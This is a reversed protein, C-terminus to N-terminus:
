VIKVSNAGFNVRLPGIVKDVDVMFGAGTAFVRGSSISIKLPSEGPYETAIEKLIALNAETFGTPLTVIIEPTKKHLDDIQTIKQATFSSREDSKNLRGTVTVIVDDNLLHGYQTLTRAFVTVEIGSDLDELVFTAMQDGKKTYRRSLKTVVGGITVMGEEREALGGPYQM